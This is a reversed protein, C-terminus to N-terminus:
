DLGLEALDMARRLADLRARRQPLDTTAGMSAAKYAAAMADFDNGLTEGSADGKRGVQWADVEGQVPVVDLAHVTEMFRQYRAGFEGLDGDAFDPTGDVYAWLTYFHMFPQALGAVVGPRKDREDDVAVDGIKVLEDVQDLLDRTSHFAELFADGDFENGEDEIDDLRAFFEDIDGQDFGTVGGSETVMALEALNQVDVMRKGKGATQIKFRRWVPQTLEEELFTILWGDFRAHRLEQATLKRSNKNLREFVERVFAPSVDDIQEVIIQYNWLISRAADDDVLDRWRKGAFRADGFEHPLYVRNTLFDLVTSIRQKGDVVHYMSNGTDLDTTKHLYIPPSPYNKFVTDMFSRRDRPTWVSRRQYPPDLDLQGRRSQEILWSLDQTNVKRKSAERPEETTM